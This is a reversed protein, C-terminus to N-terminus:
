IDGRQLRYLLETEDIEQQDLLRELFSLGHRQYIKKIREVEVIDIGIM